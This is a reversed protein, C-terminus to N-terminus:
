LGLRALRRAILARALGALEAIDDDAGGAKGPQEGGARFTGGGHRSTAASTALLEGPGVLSAKIAATTLAESPIDAALLAKLPPVGAYLNQPSTSLTHRVVPWTPLHGDDDPPWLLRTGKVAATSGYVPVHRRELEAVLARRQEGANAWFDAWWGASEPKEDFVVRGLIAGKMVGTPDMGHHWDVLRERSRRLSPFPGYVDTREDFYEGDMDRGREDPPFGFVEAKTPGGFPLMLIRRPIEGGLWRDYQGTSMPEAKLEGLAKSPSGGWGEPLMATAGLARARRIIHRKVAAPDSARGYSQVARKLAGKDPIPYSGDPMAEGSDAMDARSAASFERAAKEDSM